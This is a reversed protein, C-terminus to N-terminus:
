ERRIVGSQGCMHGGHENVVDIIDWDWGLVM